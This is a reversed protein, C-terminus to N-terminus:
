KPPCAKGIAAYAASFGKLSFTDVVKAERPGPSRATARSSSAFAAITARGNRAFAARAATYFELSTQDAHITVAANAAYAYGAEMAVADRGSVRHTVTLIVAGRGTLTPTSNLARTFAYCIPQGAEVHTAATWDDFVGIAKPKGGKQEAAVPKKKPPPSPQPQPQPQAIAPAALVLSLFALFLARSIM